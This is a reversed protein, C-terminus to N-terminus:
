DRRGAWPQRVSRLRQGDQLAAAVRLYPITGRSDQNSDLAPAPLTTPYFEVTALIEQLKGLVASDPVKEIGEAAGFGIVSEGLIFEYCAGNKFVHYYHPAAGEHGLGADGVNAQAFEIAGIKVVPPSGREPMPNALAFKACEDATLSNDVIVNLFAGEFDTGPYSDPPMEVAAVSVGHPVANHVKLKPSSDKVGSGTRQINFRSFGYTRNIYTSLKPSTVTTPRFKVTAIVAKLRRLVADSDVQTIGDVSGYGNTGLGLQFEYCARNRFITYHVSYAQHGMGLNGDDTKTFQNNGIKEPPYNDQESESPDTAASPSPKCDERTASTDVGVELFATGLDTNPYLDRPMEVAAVIESNPLAMEPQGLHGFSLKAEDGETLTWNSPYRFSFGYTQNTYTSLKSKANAALSSGPMMLYWGVLALVAAHRRNM